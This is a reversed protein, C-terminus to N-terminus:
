KRVLNFLLPLLHSVRILCALLTLTSYQHLHHPQLHVYTQQTIWACVRLTPAQFTTKAAPYSRPPFEDM